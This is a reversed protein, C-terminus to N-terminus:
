PKTQQIVDDIKAGIIRELTLKIVNLNRLNTLRIVEEGTWGKYAKDFDELKIIGDSYDKEARKYLTYEDQTVQIQFELTAKALLYDEYVTLVQEKIERYKENKNAEAIYYNQRAMKVNNPVRSFIDFPINIGFNYRPYYITNPVGNTSGESHPNITFENINGQASMTALWQSKAIKIQYSAMIASRDAVEYNPNQMALQVLRERIDTTRGTDSSQRYPSTKKGQAPASGQGYAMQSAIALLLLLRKM